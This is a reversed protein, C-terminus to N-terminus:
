GTVDAFLGLSKGERMLRIKINRAKDKINVPTRHRLITSRSGNVGYHDLILTWQPGFEKLARVLCDEETKTWRTRHQVPKERTGHNNHRGGSQESYDDHHNRGNGRSSSGGVNAPQRPVNRTLNLPRYQGLAELAPSNSASPTFAVRDGGNDM